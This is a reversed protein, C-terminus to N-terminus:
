ITLVFERIDKIKKIGLKNAMKRISEKKRTPFEELLEEVCTVPYLEKLKEIEKKTWFCLGTNIGKRKLERLVTNYSCGEDESIQYSSEGNKYRKVIDTKFQTKATM